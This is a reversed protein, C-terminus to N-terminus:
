ARLRRLFQELQPRIREAEGRDGSELLLNFGQAQNFQIRFNMSRVQLVFNNNNRLLTKLLQTEADNGSIKSNLIEALTVRSDEGINLAVRTLEGGQAANATRATEEASQGRAGSMEMLARNMSNSRWQELQSPTNSVGARNTGSRPLDDLVSSSSPTETRPTTIQNALRVEQAQTLPQNRATFAERVVRRAEIPSPTQGTPLQGLRRRLEDQVNELEERDRVVDSLDPETNTRAAAANAGPNADTSPPLFSAESAAPARDQARQATERSAQQTTPTTASSGSEDPEESAVRALYEPHREQVQPQEVYSGDTRTLIGNAILVERGRPDVGTADGVMSRLLERASDNTSNALRAEPSNPNRLQQLKRFIRCDLTGATCTQETMGCLNSQRYGIDREHRQLRFTEYSLERLRPELGQGIQQNESTLNTATADQVQPCHRLFQLNVNILQESAALEEESAELPTNALREFNNAPDLDLKGREFNDSCLSRKIAAFSKECNEALQRDLQDGASRSYLAERLRATSQPARISSLFGIAQAPTTFVANLLPHTKLSNRLESLDGQYNQTFEPSRFFDQMTQYRNPPVNRFARILAPPFMEELASSQLYLIHREPIFCAPTSRRLLTPEPRFNPDTSLIRALENATGRTIDGLLPSSSLLRTAAESSCGNIFDQPGKIQCSRRSRELSSGTNPLTALKTAELLNHAVTKKYEELATRLFKEQTEQLSLQPARGPYRRLFNSSCDRCAEARIESRVCNPLAIAGVARTLPTEQDCNEDTAHIPTSLSILILPLFRIM